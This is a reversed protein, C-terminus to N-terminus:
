NMDIRQLDNKVRGAMSDLYFHLADSPRWELSFIGTYRDRTGFEDSPRSLRPTIANDIQQISLGPNHSLLFAQDVPTGAVLGNGANAPVTGPITWNGGGTTNCPGAGCQAASLNPNTWGITEYGITRTRNRAGAAGVLVGFTGSGNTYSALASGRYGWQSALSNKTGQGSFTIHTGPNDFPRASRMNVTGAAGGELMEATPSKSVT